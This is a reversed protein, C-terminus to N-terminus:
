LPLYHSILFNIWIPVDNNIVAAELNSEVLSVESELVAQALNREIVVESVLLCLVDDAIELRVDEASSSVIFILFIDGRNPPLFAESHGLIGLDADTLWEVVRHEARFSAALISWGKVAPSSRRM